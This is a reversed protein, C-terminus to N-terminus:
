LKYFVSFEVCYEQLVIDETIELINIIDQYYVFVRIGVDVFEKVREVVCYGCHCERHFFLCVITDAEHVNCRLFLVSFTEELVYRFGVVVSVM